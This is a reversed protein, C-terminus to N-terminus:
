NMRVVVLDAAHIGSERRNEFSMRLCGQGYTSPSPLFSPAAPGCVGSALDPDLGRGASPRKGLSAHILGSLCLQPISLAALSSEVSQCEVVESKDLQTVPM